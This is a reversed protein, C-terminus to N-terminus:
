KQTNCAVIRPEYRYCKDGTKFVYPEIENLKPSEIVICKDGKCAKQFMVALAAGFLISIMFRGVETYFLRKTVNQMRNSVSNGKKAFMAALMM